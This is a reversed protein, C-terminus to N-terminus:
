RGMRCRRRLADAVEAGPAAFERRVAGYTFAVTRAEALADFWRDPTKAWGEVSPTDGVDRRVGQVEFLRSGAALGVAQDVAAIDRVQIFGRDMGDCALMAVPKFVSDDSGKLLMLASTSGFILMWRYAEGDQVFDRRPVERFGSVGALLALGVLTTALPKLRARRM